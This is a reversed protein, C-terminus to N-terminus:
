ACLMNNLYPLPSPPPTPYTTRLYYSFVPAFTILKSEFNVLTWMLSSPIAENDPNLLVFDPSIRIRGEINLLGEIHLSPNPPM